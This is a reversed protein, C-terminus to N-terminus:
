VSRVRMRIIFNCRDLDTLSAKDQKELGLFYELQSQKFNKFFSIYKEQIYTELIPMFDICFIYLDSQQYVSHLYFHGFSHKHNFTVYKM